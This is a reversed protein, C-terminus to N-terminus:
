ECRGESSTINSDRLVPAVQQRYQDGVVRETALSLLIIASPMSGFFAVAARPDEELNEPIAAVLSALAEARTFFQRLRGEILSFELRLKETEIAQERGSKVVAIAQRGAALWGFVSGVFASLIVGAVSLLASVVVAEGPEM